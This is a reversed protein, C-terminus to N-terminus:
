HGSLHRLFRRMPSSAPAPPAFAQPDPQTQGWASHEPMGEVVIPYEGPRLYGMRRAESAVGGPTRLYAIRRVLQANEAAIEGSQRETDALQVRQRSAERYPKVAKLVLCVALFVSVAIVAASLILRAWM